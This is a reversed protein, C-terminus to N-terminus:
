LLALATQLVLFAYFTYCLSVVCVIIGAIALGKLRENNRNCQFLGIISLVLGAIAVAVFLTIFLSVVSLVFGTISLVNVKRKENNKEGQVAVDDKVACGCFPCIVAEDKIEKGCTKCFMNKKM